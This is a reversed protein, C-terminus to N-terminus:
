KDTKEISRLKSWMASNRINRTVFSMAPMNLLMVSIKFDVDNSVSGSSKDVIMEALKLLRASVENKVIILTAAM